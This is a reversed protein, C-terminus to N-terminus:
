EGDEDISYTDPEIVEDWPTELKGGRMFSEHRRMLSDYEDEQIDCKRDHEQAQM